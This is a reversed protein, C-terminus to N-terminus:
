CWGRFVCWLLFLLFAAAAQRACCVCVGFCAQAEEEWMQASASRYMKEPVKRGCLCCSCEREGGTECVMLGTLRPSLGMGALPPPPPCWPLRLLCMAFTCGTDQFLQTHHSLPRGARFGWVEGGGGETVGDLRSFAEQMPGAPSLCCSPAPLFPWWCREAPIFAKGGATEGWQVAMTGVILAPPQPTRWLVAIISRCEYVLLLQCVRWGHVM